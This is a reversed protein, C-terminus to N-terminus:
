IIFSLTEYLSRISCFKLFRGPFDAIFLVDSNNSWSYVEESIENIKKRFNSYKTLLPLLWEVPEFPSWNSKLLDYTPDYMRQKFRKNLSCWVDVYISINSSVIPISKNQPLDLVFVNTIFNTSVILVHINFLYFLKVLM